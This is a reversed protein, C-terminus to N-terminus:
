KRLINKYTVLESKQYGITVLVFDVVELRSNLIKQNMRIAKKLRLIIDSLTNFKDELHLDTSKNEQVIQRLTVCEYGMKRQLLERQKEINASGMMYPQELNVLRDLDEVTGNLLIQTKQNELDLLQQQITIQKNLLLCLNEVDSKNLM